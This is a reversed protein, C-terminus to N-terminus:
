TRIFFAASYGDLVVKGGKPEGAFYTLPAARWGHEPVDAEAISDTLNFAALIEGGDRIDKRLIVLIGESSPLFTMDGTKLAPITKRWRTFERCRSLPSYPNGEEVDVARALHEDPVPLWPRCTTFGGNVANKNWPMPTRSGDRGKFEPWMAKGYPDQLLEYPIDSEPLGLEEGEYVCASGRFTLLLAWLLPAARDAVAELGWRSIVRPVDHNSTSWCIWGDRIERTLHEVVSRIHSASFEDTLLEFVYSMHLRKGKETYAALTEGVQPGDVGLEGVLMRDGYSDMLRRLESLFLLNEPRTKDYLHDQFNYPNSAPASAFTYGKPFPPNDRMAADHFYYNVTDLRFGDVGKDLWFRMDGLLARRVEPNHFNLDPQSKLFNHLYYQMRGTNWEWSSGGFVSLWNTPPTGDEKPDAWVYWDAKPNIRDKRSEVFWPHASATHSIVQDIIVKLGLSHAESVLADFDAMTGFMTDVSRYDSVDYGFDEMPSTFFPSLWIADVGLDAVYALKRTIGPLDGIGDDNTDMFSRPYIQYIVAGRWWENSAFM